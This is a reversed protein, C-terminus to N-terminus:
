EIRKESWVRGAKKCTLAPLAIYGLNPLGLLVKLFELIRDLDYKEKEGSFIFNHCCYKM